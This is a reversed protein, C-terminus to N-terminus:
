SFLTLLASYAKLIGILFAIPSLVGSTFMILLCFSKIKKLYQATQLINSLYAFSTCIIAFFLGMCFSFTSETLVTLVNHSIGKNWVNSFFALLAIIAGGHALFLMKVVQLGSEYNIRIDENNM